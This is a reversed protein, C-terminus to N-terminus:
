TMALEPKMPKFCHQIGFCAWVLTFQQKKYCRWYVIGLRCQHNQRATQHCVDAIANGNRNKRINEYKEGYIVCSRVCAEYVKGKVSSWNKQCVFVVETKKCNNWAKNVRALVAHEYGGNSSM